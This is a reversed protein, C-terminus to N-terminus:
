ILQKSLAPAIKKPHGRKRKVSLDDGTLYSPFSKSGIAVEIAISHNCYYKKLSYSCSCKVNRDIVIEYISQKYNYYENIDTFIYKREGLTLDRNLYLIGRKPIKLKKIELYVNYSHNYDKRTINVEKAFQIGNSVDRDTSKEKIFKMIIDLFSGMLQRVRVIGEDKIDRNFSELGNNTSPHYLGAGEYWNENKDIWNKRFYDLFQNISADNKATWYKFFLSTSQIFEQEDKSIHIIYIHDNILKRTEKDEITLLRKEVAETFHFWCMLCIVDSGLIKKVSARIAPAADSMSYKFKCKSGNLTETGYLVSKLIFDIDEEQENVSIQFAIPHFKRVRDSVGVIIMPYNNLILKYTADISILDSSNAFQLLRRTTLVIRFKNSDFFQYGLVFPSHPFNPEPIVQHAGCWASLEAINMSRYENTKNKIRQKLNQIQTRSATIGNQKLSNQINRPTRNIDNNLIDMVRKGNFKKNEQEIHLHEKRNWLVKVYENESPYYVQMQYPCAQFKCKYYKKVGMAPRNIRFRSYESLDFGEEFELVSGFSSVEIWDINHKEGDEEHENNLGKSIEEIEQIMDDM